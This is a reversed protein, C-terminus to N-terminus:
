GIDRPLVLSAQSKHLEVDQFVPAVSLRQDPHTLSIPKCSQNHSHIRLDKALSDNIDLIHERRIGKFKLDELFYSFAFHPKPLIVLGFEM